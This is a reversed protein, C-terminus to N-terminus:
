PSAPTSVDKQCIAAVREERMRRIVAASDIGLSDDAIDVSEALLQEALRLQAERQRADVEAQQAAAATFNFSLQECLYAALKLRDAPPLQDALGRVQELTVPNSM